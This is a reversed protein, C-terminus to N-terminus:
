HSPGTAPLWRETQAKSLIIHGIQSHRCRLRRAMWLGIFMLIELWAGSKMISQQDSSLRRRQVQPFFLLTKRNCTTQDSVLLDKNEYQVVHAWM